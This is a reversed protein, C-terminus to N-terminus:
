DVRIRSLCSDFLIGVEAFTLLEIGDSKVFKLSRVAPVVMSMESDPLISSSPHHHSFGLSPMGGSTGFHGGGDLLSYDPDHTTPFGFFSSLSSFPLSSSFPTMYQSGDPLRADLGPPIGRRRAPNATPRRRKGGELGTMESLPKSSRVDWVKVTGSQSAVAYKSGDSSWATSFAADSFVSKYTASPSFTVNAGGEIQYLYVSPTDGAM